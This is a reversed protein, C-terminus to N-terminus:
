LLNAGLQRYKGYEATKFSHCRICLVQLNDSSCFLTEMWALLEPLNEDMPLQWEILKLESIHDVEVRDREFPKHCHACEFRVATKVKNNSKNRKGTNVVIRASKMAAERYPSQSWTKRMLKKFRDAMKIRQQHTINVFKKKSSM